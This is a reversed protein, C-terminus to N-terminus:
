LNEGSSLATQVVQWKHVPLAWWRQKKGVTCEQWLSHTLVWRNRCSQWPRQTYGLRPLFCLVPCATSLADKTSIWFEDMKNRLSRTNSLIMSPLPPRNGRKRLRQRAGGRRGRKRLQQRRPARMGEPLNKTFSRSLDAAYGCYCLSLLAERSYVLARNGSTKCTPFLECLPVM